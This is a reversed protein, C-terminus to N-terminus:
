EAAAAREDITKQVEELKKNTLKYFLAIVVIAVVLFATGWVSYINLIGNAVEPTAPQGAVYGVKKLVMPVIWATATGAIRLPYGSIGMITAPTVATGNKYQAYVTCNAYGAVFIPYNFSAFFQHTALIAIFGIGSKLGITKVLAITVAMGAMAFQSLRKNDFKKTAEGVALTGLIGLSNVVLSYTGMMGANGNISRWYYAACKTLIYSVCSTCSNALFLCLLQDNTVLNMFVDKLGVKQQKRTKIEDIGEGEYGETLKFQALFGFFTLVAFGFALIVYATGETIGRALLFATVSTVIINSVLRFVNSFMYKRSALINKDAPTKAVVTLLANDSQTRCTGPITAVMLIAIRVAAAVAESEGWRIWNLPGTFIGIISGLILWSRYKGWKKVIPKSTDLWAGVLPGLILGMITSITSVLGITAPTFKAIDTEWITQYYSSMTTSLVMVGNGIGWFLKIATSLPENRRDRVVKESM